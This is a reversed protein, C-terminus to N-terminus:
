LVYLCVRVLVVLCLLLWGGVCALLLRVVVFVGLYSCFLGLMPCCLLVGRLFCRFMFLVCANCCM